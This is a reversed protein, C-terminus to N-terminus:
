ARLSMRRALRRKPRATQRFQPPVWPRRRMSAFILHIFSRPSRPEAAGGVELGGLRPDTGGEEVAEGSEARGFCSANCLASPTLPLEAELPKQLQAQSSWDSVSLRALTM